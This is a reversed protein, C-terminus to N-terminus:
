VKTMIIHSEVKYGIRKKVKARANIRRGNLHHRTGLIGRTDGFEIKIWGRSLRSIRYFIRGFRISQKTLTMTEVVHGYDYNDNSM